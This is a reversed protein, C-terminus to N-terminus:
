NIMLIQRKKIFDAIDAKTALKKQALRVALNEATLKNVEQTTIYKNGRDHDTNTKLKRLKQTM